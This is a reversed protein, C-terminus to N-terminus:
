KVRANPHKPDVELCKYFFHIALSDDISSYNLGLNFYASSERYKFQIAKKYDITSEHYKFLMAECYGRKFYYEGNLSDITILTDFYKVAEEYNDGNYLSD